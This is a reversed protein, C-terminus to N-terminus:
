KQAESSSSVVNNKGKPSGKLSCKQLATVPFIDEEVLCVILAIDRAGQKNIQFRPSIKKRTVICKAKAAETLAFICTSFKIQTSMATNQPYGLSCRRLLFWAYVYEQKQTLAILPVDM